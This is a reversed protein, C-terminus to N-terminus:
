DKTISNFTEQSVNARRNGASDLYDTSDDPDIKEKFSIVTSRTNSAHNREAVVRVYFDYYNLKEYPTKGAGHPLPTKPPTLIDM